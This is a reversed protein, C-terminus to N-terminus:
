TNHTTMITPRRRGRISPSANHRDTQTVPANAVTILDDPDILVNKPRRFRPRVRPDPQYNVAQRVLPNPHSPAAEFYRKSAQKMWQAITPLQVDRHLDVNRCYPPAGTANRIFRNQLVQFKRLNSPSAHAFVISAYTMVPRICVKYLTVKHRLNMKSRRNILPHLRGLIFAARNRVTTIHRQFTLGSDLTVGLYKVHKVWPILKDFMLIQGLTRSPRPILTRRTRTFHVAASKEPNVEIRWKRFWVGLINAAKQLLKTLVSQNSHSTYLATDDAFLALEVNPPHPIDSTYLSFLTPSLVSGQPVGSHLPHPSSLTGEVRYRFTRDTLYDRIIHVLGDPVGMSHLKYVLGNHWVKDFAKAVDFFLAGTGRPRPRSLGTIIHETIRHVLQPCSHQARFGFQEDIFLGKSTIIDKLRRLLLREYIKGLSSLLSIPRYSTPNSAPKNPKRIGIVVASKWAAPFTCSAMAANLIMVLLYLLPGTLNKLLKNSIGDAGPASKTRLGKIISQVEPVNTPPLLDVPPLSALREVTSDVTALHDPDVPELSPSCQSELSSALCEAKEDDDFAPPQNPRTLPPMSICGDAKLTRALKYYAVHSPSIEELLTNWDNNRIEAIRKKVEKQLTRMRSRNAETPYMDHARIAANKATLLRRVEVPLVWRRDNAASVQRTCDKIVTQLHSTFADIAQDTEQPSSIISPISDLQPSSTSELAHSVRHWDVIPKTQPVQPDTDQGLHLLVPRHDSDLEHLAEILRLRLTVNKLLVIDLIDPRHNVNSPYHTPSM